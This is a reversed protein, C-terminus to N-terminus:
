PCARQDPPSFSQVADLQHPISRVEAEGGDSEVAARVRQRQHGQHRRACAIAQKGKTKERMSQDLERAGRVWQGHDEEQRAWMAAKSVERVLLALPLLACPAVELAM